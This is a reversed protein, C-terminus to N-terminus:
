GELGLQEFIDITKTMPNGMSALFNELEKRSLNMRGDDQRSIIGKDVCWDRVRVFPVGGIEKVARKLKIINLRGKPTAYNDYSGNKFIEYVIDSMNEDLITGSTYLLDEKIADQKPHEVPMVRWIEDLWKVIDEEPIEGNKDNITFEVIRRDPQYGMVDKVSENTASFFTVLNDCTQVDIGKREIDM